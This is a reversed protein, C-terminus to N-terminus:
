PALSGGLCAATPAAAALSAKLDRRVDATSATALRGAQPGRVAMAGAGCPRQAPANM